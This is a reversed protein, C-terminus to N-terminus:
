VRILTIKKTIDTRLFETLNSYIICRTKAFIKYLFKEFHCNFIELFRNEFLFWQFVFLFYFFPCFQNWFHDLKSIICLSTHKQSFLLHSTKLIAASFGVFVIKSLFDNSVCLFYFIKVYNLNSITKDFHFVHCFTNTFIRYSSKWFPRQFM